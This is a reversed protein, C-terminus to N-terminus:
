ETMQGSCHCRTGLCGKELLVNYKWCKVIHFHASAFSLYKKFSKGWVQRWLSWELRSSFDIEWSNFFQLFSCSYIHARFIIFFGLFFLFAETLNGGNEQWSMHFHAFASLIFQKCKQLMMLVDGREQRLWTVKREETWQISYIKWSM